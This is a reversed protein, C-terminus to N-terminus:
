VGKQLVEDISAKIIDWDYGRRALFAGLKQYLEPKPLNRYREIKKEVLKKALELDDVKTSKDAFVAEIIEQSIGKQKLEMKVIRASKQKFRARSEAFWTAFELDNLFKHEKLFAIIKEIVEVPAKKRGSSSQGKALKKYLYDRVEKESRARFSLFNVASDLYKQYLDM